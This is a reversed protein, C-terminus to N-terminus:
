RWDFQPLDIGIVRIFSLWNTGISVEISVREPAM